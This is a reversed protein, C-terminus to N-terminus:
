IFLSRRDIDFCFKPFLMLSLARLIKVCLDLYSPTDPFCKEKKNRWSFMNHTSM